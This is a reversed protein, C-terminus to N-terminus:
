AGVIFIRRVGCASQNEAPMDPKYFSNPDLATSATTPEIFVALSFASQAGFEAEALDPVAWFTDSNGVREPELNVLDATVEVVSNGNTCRTWIAGTVCPAYWWSLKYSSGEVRSSDTKRMDVKLFYGAREVVSVAGEASATLDLNRGRFIHIAPNLEDFPLPAPPVRGAGIYLSPPM